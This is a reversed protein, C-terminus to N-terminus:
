CQRSLTLLWLRAFLINTLNAVLRTMKNLIARLLRRTHWPESRVAREKQFSRAVFAIRASERMWVTNERMELSLNTLEVFCLRTELPGLTRKGM